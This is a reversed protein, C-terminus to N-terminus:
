KKSFISLLSRAFVRFPRIVFYLFYLEPPLNISSVDFFNPTFAFHLFQRLRNRYSAKIKFRSKPSLTDFKHDVKIENRKPEFIIQEFMKKIQKNELVRQEIETPLRTGLLQHTVYLSLLLVNSEGFFRTQKLIWNWDLQNGSNILQDIEWVWFLRDWNHKYIHFCLILLIIEPRLMKLSVDNIIVPELRGWILANSKKNIM